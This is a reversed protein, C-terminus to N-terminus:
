DNLIDPTKWALHQGQDVIITQGTVSRAEILYRLAAAIDELRVPKGGPTASTEAVFEAETQHRSQLTPGPGIGVVRVRPSLAQALMRTAYYLAGKSLTYGFFQPNPKMVRQDLINVVLADEGAPTQAAFAQALALPARLNIEMHADWGEETLTEIRDDEFRSANNILLTLPRDLAVAARDVLGKVEGRRELDATVAQALGGAAVIEAVVADADTQSAGGRHHVAVAYGM